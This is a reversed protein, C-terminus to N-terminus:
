GIGVLASEDLRSDTSGTNLVVRWLMLIVPGLTLTYGGHGRVGGRM